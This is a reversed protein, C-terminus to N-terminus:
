VVSADRAEGQKSRQTQQVHQAVPRTAPAGGKGDSALIRAILQTTSQDPEYPVIVVQGGLSEVLPAEPLTDRTYDGGKVFVDPRVARILEVPTDDHFPVVHDVSSLAALVAVRDDLTNIPRQPGKLRRISPDGNVGVILVDGLAKARSLYAIHGRHLIDFCGNTFVVRRGRRRQGEVCARLEELGRLRKDGPAVAARLAAAACTTTGDLEVVVSAAAAALEAAVPPPVEAALALSLAAVFTDGAGAARSSPMPRAYTRYPAAGRELLLSGDTDLTVVTLAAGTRRQLAAARGAIFGVREPVQEPATGLLRLAEEYNPKAATAGIARFTELRKSDVVLVRPSAAQLSALASVIPPTITGYDYDSVIVAAASPWLKRLRAILAAETQPAIPSTDGHDCRLLTQGDATIRQKVLTVRGAQRVLDGADVGCDTIAQALLEGEHDDGIAGLLWPRGELSRVNTAANAAGGPRDSRDTQTVIPVPAERCIRRATGEVYSDLMVDGIVVVRLDRLADIADTLSM